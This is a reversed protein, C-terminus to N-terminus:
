NDVETPSAASDADATMPEPAHKPCCDLGPGWGSHEEGAEYAETTCDSCMFTDCYDCWAGDDETTDCGCVDCKDKPDGTAM